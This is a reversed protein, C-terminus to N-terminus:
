DYWHATLMALDLAEVDDNWTYDCQWGNTGYVSWFSTFYALDLAEVDGDMPSGPNRYSDYANCRLEVAKLIETGDVIARIIVTGQISSASQVTFRIEGAANTCYDVPTFILNLTGYWYTDGDVKPIVEFEFVDYPIGAQFVTVKVYEYVESPAKILGTPTTTLGPYQEATLTIFSREPDINWWSKKGTSIGINAVLFLILIIVVLGKGFWTNKM